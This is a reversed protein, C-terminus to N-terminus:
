KLIVLKEFESEGKLTIDTANASRIKVKYLYVGRALQDGYDDKGDWSICDDRRISGDSFISQDITKVLRGSVTYIQILVDLQQNTLNHDFQFCTQDTFPNPYNLVHELAVSESTAVVFETFGESSNNAVDWAKVRIEHLGPAIDELPFRVVGKRYDDLESEYFDNLLYTNQTDNDLVGELDHGISNGVVNIGNDDELKVLLTPNEDTVGGFVFDETNMFVEVKPGLDDAFGESSTGGIIVNEYTGAADIKQGEDQAYYSIKGKGFEFNIDKPVVFTFSFSGNTVRARGKFIINKQIVFNVLPSGPDQELTSATIAKDFVTPFLIGNFNELKQGDTGRIEGTITVQQLARITDSTTPSIPSNNIATTAIEYKPIALVQAPDGILTFKRSNTEGFSLDNKAQNIVEGLTSYKGNNSEFLKFLTSRTLAENSNAYVARTTTLLAIGGGKEKLFVEEGGSTFGPDDYGTFSCTATLFLPLRNENEWSLIDSIGLVREQTWGEAGGHGLYTVVLNGKFIAQNIAETMSPVRDGGPTALQPYADLYIKDVNYNPHEEAVDDAISDADRTHRSSDEDDGVFVLRNRWDGFKVSESDYRIVKNVVQEAETTSKVPFRGVAISLDGSLVDNSGNDELLGFYDDTPYSFIPNMSDAEYVPVLDGGFGYIDRADFSADGFLLLYRFNPNRDYLMKAFDRIATPDKAGSSFENYIQDIRITAVSLNSSNARHTALQNAYTAYSSDAPYIIIMDVNDIGHANQNNVKGVAVPSLGVRDPYFAVFEKLNPTALTFEAQSGNIALQQNKAANRDTIDWVVLGNDANSLVFSSADSGISEIDRFLMQNGDMILDRRVNLQIFDLWGESTGQTPYELLIDINDDNTTVNSNLRATNAYSTEVARPGDLTSVRPASASNLKQGNVTLSFSSSVNARLLMEAKVNITADSSINPFTFLNNYEKSRAGKFFDGMWRQGSGQTQNWEHLLNVLDDEYRGYDSFSNTTYTAGQLSNQNQVRLGNESGIKIFYYGQTDYINKRMNFIRDSESYVWNDPGEAYMIIFDGSDFNGDEEGVFLVHNEALDDIRESGIYRPLMGGGNGLIQIRRPDIDDVPINLEDKLFSYTLKYIGTKPIAFKYIDGDSLKSTTENNPGRTIVGDPQPIHEVQLEISTVRQYSAGSKIIPIFSLKGTYQNRKKSVNTTFSLDESLYGDLVSSQMEFDEYEVALVQVQFTGSSSVPFTEILWPLAPFEEYFIAGKFSWQEAYTNEYPVKTPSKEWDLKQRIIIPSNAFVQGFWCILLLLTLIKKM